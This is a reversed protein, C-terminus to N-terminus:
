QLVEWDALATTVELFIKRKEQKESLLVGEFADSTGNPLFRIHATLDLGVYNVRNVWLESFVVSEPLTARFGSPSDGPNEPAPPTNPEGDKSPAVGRSPTVELVTETASASIVLDVPVGKLIAEARAQRCAELLDNSATRIARRDAARFMAPVSIGMVLAIIAVVIMIEILTFAHRCLPRRNGTAPQLNEPLVGEPSVQLPCSEVHLGTKM